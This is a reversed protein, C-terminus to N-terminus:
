SENRTWNITLAAVSTREVTVRYSNTPVFPIFVAPKTQVGSITVTDYIREASGEEDNVYITIVIVDAAVMAQTFVWTAYHALTTQSSFLNQETGDTVLNGHDETLPM